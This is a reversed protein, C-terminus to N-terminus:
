SFAYGYLSLRNNAVSEFGPGVEEKPEEKM